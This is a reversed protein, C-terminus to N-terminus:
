GIAPSSAIPAARCSHARGPARHRRRHQQAAARSRAAVRRRYGAPVDLELIRGAGEEVVALLRTPRGSDPAAGVGRRRRAGFDRHRHGRARVSPPQRAQQRAHHHPARRAPPWRALRAPEERRQRHRRGLVDSRGIDESELLELDTGDGNLVLTHKLRGAILEGRAADREILTVDMGDLNADLREAVQLGSTAAASSPSASGRRRTADGDDPAAGRAARGPTGMVLMKDRAELKSDGRPIFFEDGRRVAVILSNQPLHLDAIAASSRRTRSSGTSSWGSRATPSRRPM